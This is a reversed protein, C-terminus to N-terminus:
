IIYMDKDVNDLIVTDTNLLKKAKNKTIIYAAASYMGNFIASYDNHLKLIGFDQHLKSAIVDDFQKGILKENPSTDDELILTYKEDGSAAKEWVSRHALYIGIASNPRFKYADLDKETAIIGDSIIPQIGVKVLSSYKETSKYNKDLTIVYTKM